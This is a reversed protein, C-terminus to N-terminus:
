ISCKRGNHAKHCSRWVCKERAIKLLKQLMASYYLPCGFARMLAEKQKKLQENEAKFAEVEAERQNLHDKLDETLGELSEKRRLQLRM